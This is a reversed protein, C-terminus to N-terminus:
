RVPNGCTIEPSDIPPRQVGAATPTVTATVFAQITYTYQVTNVTTTQTGGDGFDWIFSTGVGGTETSTFTVTLPLPGSSPTVHLVLAYDDPPVFPPVIGFTKILYAPTQDTYAFGYMSQSLGIAVPSQLQNDSIWQQFSTADVPLWADGDSTPYGLVELEAKVSAYTIIMMTM